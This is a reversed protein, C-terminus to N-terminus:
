VLYAPRSAVAGKFWVSPWQDTSLTSKLTPFLRMFVSEVTMSPADRERWADIM